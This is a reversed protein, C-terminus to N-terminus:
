KSLLGEKRLGLTFGYTDAYLKGLDAAISGKLITGGFINIKGQMTLLGSFQTPSGVFPEDYTGSNSSYSLKTTWIINQMLTGKLGIHFVSVRNNSTFSDAYSPWRDKTDSTPTIFPTGITRYYYSWGDRVQAHNFYNDHGRNKGDTIIFNDGGQDKTYLFEFVGEMIQFNSGYSNKRRIRLGNLGDKLGTLYFISGDEYPTQRYILISSGFTEIEIALDISGLQNGIRNTSDFYTASSGKVGLSGTAMKIYNAFGSPMKGDITLYPSKGGWQVQHNAGAYLKLRSNSKGLRIYIAKQHLKLDSTIPRNNEFLGDSYFGNFSVWGKTFPVAVFGRTGIQIKPIPMANGSWAYSGTGLTSDALGVWQKKRGVSFEWNKFRIAGYAQPLLFKNQQKTINGAAEVGFGIRWKNTGDNSLSHFYDFGAHVSGAPSVRPVIGFQNAQIWFPTRSTSSGFGTLEVFSSTSDSFINIDSVSQSHSRFCITSIFFSIFITSIPRM